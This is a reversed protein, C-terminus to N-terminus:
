AGEGHCDDATDTKGGADIGVGLVCGGVVFAL